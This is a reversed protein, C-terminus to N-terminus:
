PTQCFFDVTQIKPSHCPYPFILFWCVTTGGGTVKPRCSQGASCALVVGQGLMSQSGATHQSPDEGCWGDTRKLGSLCATNNPCTADFTPPPVPNKLFCLASPGMRGAAVFTWAQCGANATCAAACQNTTAVPIGVRGPTIDNGLFDYSRADFSMALTLMGVLVGSSLIVRVNKM